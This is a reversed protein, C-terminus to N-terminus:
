FRKAGYNTSPMTLDKDQNLYVFGLIMGTVAVLTVATWFPWGLGDSSTPAPRPEVVLYTPRPAPAPPVPAYAPQPAPWAYSAQAVQFDAAAAPKVMGLLLAVTALSAVARSFAACWRALSGVEVNHDASTLHVM